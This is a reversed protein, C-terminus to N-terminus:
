WVVVRLVRDVDLVNRAREAVHASLRWRYEASRRSQALQERVQVISSDPLAVASPCKRARRRVSPNDHTRGNRGGTEGPRESRSWRPDRSMRSRATSSNAVRVCTRSGRGPEAISPAPLSARPCPASAACRAHARDGFARRRRAPASRTADGDGVLGARGPRADRSASAASASRRARATRTREDHVQASGTRAQDSRSSLWGRRPAACGRPARVVSAPAAPTRSASSTMGLGSERTPRAPAAEDVVVELEVIGADAEVEAVGCTIPSTTSAM